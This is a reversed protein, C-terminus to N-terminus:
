GLDLLEAAGRRMRQLDASPSSPLTQVTSGRLLGAVM